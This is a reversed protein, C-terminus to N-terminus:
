LAPPAPKHLRKRINGPSDGFTQKCFRFFNSSLPFDYKIVIEKLPMDNRCIDLYIQRAKERQMWKHPTMGFVRKFRNSFAQSTMFLAEAIEGVTKYKMHNMRVFESFKIDPTLIHSFFEACDQPSYYAHLLFLMRFVETRMYLRCQFGDDLSERVGEIYHWMRANAKLAFLEPRTRANSDIPKHTMLAHCEPSDVILRIMMLTTDETFRCAWHSGGPQFIFDGQELSRGINTNEMAIRLSGRLVFLVQQQLVNVTGQAGQTYKCMFIVPGGGDKSCFCNKHADTHYLMNYCM